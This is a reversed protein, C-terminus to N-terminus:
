SGRIQHKECHSKLEGTTEIPKAARAELIQLTIRGANPLEGYEKFLKVLQEAEYGNVVEKCKASQWSEHAYRAPM